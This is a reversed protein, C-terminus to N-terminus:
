EYNFKEVEASVWSWDASITTVEAFSHFNFTDQREEEAGAVYAKAAEFARSKSRYVGINGDESGKVVYAYM